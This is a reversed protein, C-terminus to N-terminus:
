SQFMIIRIMISVVEHEYFFQAREFDILTCTVKLDFSLSLNFEKEFVRMRTQGMSLFRNETRNEFRSQISSSRKNQQQKKEKKKKKKAHISHRTSFRYRM